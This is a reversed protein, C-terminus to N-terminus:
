IDPVESSEGGDESSGFDVKARIGGSEGEFDNQFGRFLWFSLFSAIFQPM